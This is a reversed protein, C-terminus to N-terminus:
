LLMLQISTLLGEQRYNWLVKMSESLASELFGEILAKKLFYADGCAKVPNCLTATIPFPSGSTCVFPTTTNESQYCHSTCDGQAVALNPPTTASSADGDTDGSTFELYFRFWYWQIYKM